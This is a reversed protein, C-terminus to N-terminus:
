DLEPLYEPQLEMFAIRNNQFDEFFFFFQM